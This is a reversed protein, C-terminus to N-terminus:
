NSLTDSNDIERETLQPLKNKQLISRKDINDFNYIYLYKYYKENNKLIRLSEEEYYQYTLWTCDRKQEKTLRAVNTLTITTKTENIKWITKWKWNWQNRTKDKSESNTQERPKSQDKTKPNSNLNSNLSWWGKTAYIKGKQLIELKENTKM